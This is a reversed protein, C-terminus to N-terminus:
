GAAEGADSTSRRAGAAIFADLDRGRYRILRGGLRVFAPGCGELRWRQLTRASIPRSGGLYRGAEHEDYLLDPGPRRAPDHGAEPAHSPITTPDKLHQV